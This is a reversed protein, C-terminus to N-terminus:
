LLGPTARVDLSREVGSLATPTSARFATRVNLWGRIRIAIVVFCGFIWVSGLVGPWPIRTPSQAADARQPEASVDAFPETITQVTEVIAPVVSAAPVPTSRWALAGGLGILLSFPVLFKLSAALWVAHRVSAQNRRLAFAALAAAFLFVTSQWLHNIVGGTM